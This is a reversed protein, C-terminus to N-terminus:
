SLKIYYEIGNRQTAIRQFFSDAADLSILHSFCWEVRREIAGNETDIREIKRM